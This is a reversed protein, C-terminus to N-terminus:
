CPTIRNGNGAQLFDSHSIQFLEADNRVGLKRMGNCKHASITKISRNCLSAIDTVSLGAFLHTMVMRETATLVNTVPQAEDTRHNIAMKISHSCVKVEKLALAMEQRIQDKAEFQAILSIRQRSQLALLLSVDRCPTYVVIRLQPYQEHLMLLWQATSVLEEPFGSLEVVLVKVVTDALKERLCLWSSTALVCNSGLQLDQIFQAMGLRTLPNCAVIALNINVSSPMM